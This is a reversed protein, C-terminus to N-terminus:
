EIEPLEDLAELLSLWAATVDAHITYETPWEWEGMMTMSDPTPDGSMLSMVEAPVSSGSGFVHWEGGEQNWDCREEGPFHDPWLGDPRSALESLLFAGRKSKLQVRGLAASVETRIPNRGLCSLEDLVSKFVRGGNRRKTM